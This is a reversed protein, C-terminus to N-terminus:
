GAWGPKLEWGGLTDRANQWAALARVGLGTLRYLRRPLGSSGPERVARSSVYGKDEMRDLLVYVTGRRLDSSSKVMELGYMEGKGSLLSLVAVEKPSPLKVPDNM